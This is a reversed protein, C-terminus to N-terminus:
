LACGIRNLEEIVVFDLANPQYDLKHMKDVVRNFDCDRGLCCFKTAANLYNNFKLVIELGTREETPMLDGAMEFRQAATEIDGIRESEEALNFFLTSATARDSYTTSVALITAIEEVRSEFETYRAQDGKCYYLNMLRLSISAITRNDKLKEAINIAILYYDEGASYDRILDFAYYGMSDYAGILSESLGGKNYAESASLIAREYFDNARDYECKSNYLIALYIYTDAAEDNRGKELAADASRELDNLQDPNLLREWDECWLKPWVWPENEPACIAPENNCFESARPKAEEIPCTQPAQGCSLSSAAFFSSLLANRRIRSEKQTIGKGQFDTFSSLKQM